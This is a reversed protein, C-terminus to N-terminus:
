RIYEKKRLLSIKVDKLRSATNQHVPHCRVYEHGFVCTLEIIEIYDLQKAHIGDLGFASGKKKTPSFYNRYGGM